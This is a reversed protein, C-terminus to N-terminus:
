QQCTIKRMNAACFERFDSPTYYNLDGPITLGIVQALRASQESCVEGAAKFPLKVKFLTYFLDLFLQFVSYNTGLQCLVYRVMPGIYAEAIDYAYEEVAIEKL